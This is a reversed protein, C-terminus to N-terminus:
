IDGGEGLPRYALPVATGVVDEELFEKWTAHTWLASTAVLQQSAEVYQGRAYLALADELQARAQQLLDIAEPRQFTHLGQAILSREYAMTGDSLNDLVPKLPCWPADLYDVYREQDPYKRRGQADVVAAQGLRRGLAEADDRADEISTTHVPLGGVYRMGLTFSWKCLNENALRQMGQNSACSISAFPMGELKGSWVFPYCREIFLHCQASPGWFHVPDAIIWGNARRVEAMLAGDAGMADRLSCEHEERRICNFCSTCPGFRYGHLHVRKVQVGDVGEAGRVAADLVSATFGGSRGSALLALVYAM